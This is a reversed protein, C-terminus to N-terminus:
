SVIRIIRGNCELLGETEMQAVIRQVRTADRDILRALQSLSIEVHEILAAIVLGRVQRDSGEFPAQRHYHASRRNPNTELKKLHVGYDMLAYYWRRPNSRDLTEDVLPLISRDTVGVRDAFFVHLYVRRINTEIFVSPKNFAFAVIAGATANGIGPLTKLEKASCPLAGGYRATVERATHHLSVARRNYGLGKWVALVDRPSAAALAAFSPFRDLFLQYKAVVRDTQTQQLMVESVLIHYPNRTERWPFERGNEAFYEYVM